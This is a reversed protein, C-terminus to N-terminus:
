QVDLRFNKAWDDLDGKIAGLVGWFGGASPKGAMIAEPSGVPWAKGDWRYRPWVGLYMSHM